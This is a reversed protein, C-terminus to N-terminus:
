ERKGRRDTKEKRREEEFKRTLRAKQTEDIREWYTKCFERQALTLPEGEEYRPYLRIYMKRRIDEMMNNYVKRINRDTQGRLAAIKQPTWQRIAWYYLIEKRSEDLERTFDYVPHSSTLEQIEHPCDHIVDLFNGGLMQRWWVHNIPRPIIISRDSLESDPLEADYNEENKGIRYREVIERDDWLRNINEFDAETRAADERRRLAERKAERLLMRKNPDADRLARAEAKWDEIVKRRHQRERRKEESDWEDYNM